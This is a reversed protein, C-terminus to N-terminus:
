RPFSSPAGIGIASASSWMKPMQRTLSQDARSMWDQSYLGRPGKRELLKAVVVDGHTTVHSARSGYRTGANKRGDLSGRCSGYRVDSFSRFSPPSSRLM